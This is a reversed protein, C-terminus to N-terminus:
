LCRLFLLLECVNTVLVFLCFTYVCGGLLVGNTIVYQTHVINCIPIYLSLKEKVKMKERNKETGRKRM